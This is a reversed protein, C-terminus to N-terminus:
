KKYFVNDALNKLLDVYSNSLKVIGNTIGEEIIKWLKEEDKIKDIFKELRKYSSYSRGGKFGYAFLCDKFQKIIIITDGYKLRDINSHTSLVEKGFNNLAIIFGGIVSSPVGNIQSFQKTYINLGTKGALAFFIPEEREEDPLEYVAKILNIDVDALNLREKISSNQTTLDEWKDIKEILKDHENSIKRALNNLGKDDALQQAQGMLDRARNVNLHILELKANLLKSEAIISYSYQKQGYNEIRKALSKLEKIIAKDGTTQLELLLIDFLNKMADITIECDIIDEDSIEQFIELAIIKDSIDKSDKLLIAKATRYLQNFISFTQKDENDESLKQLKALYFNTEDYENRDDLRILLYLIEAQYRLYSYAEALKLVQKLSQRARETEKKEELIISYSIMSWIQDEISEYEEFISQSEQQLTLAKDLDGKIRYFSSINGRTRAAELKLNFQEQIGLCLNDYNLALNIEGKSSYIFAISYYCNALFQYEQTEQFIMVSQLQHNLAKDLEGLAILTNGINHLTKGMELKSQSKRLEYSQKYYDLAHKYSSQNYNISGLSNLIQSKYELLKNKHSDEQFANQIIKSNVINLAELYKGDDIEKKIITEFKKFDSSIFNSEM